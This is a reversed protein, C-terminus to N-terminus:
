TFTFTKWSAGTIISTPDEPNTFTIIFMKPVADTTSYIMQGSINPTPPNTSQLSKGILRTYIEAITAQDNNDLPPISWGENSLNAQLQQYLNSLSLHWNPTFHGTKDVAPTHRPFDPFISQNKKKQVAM